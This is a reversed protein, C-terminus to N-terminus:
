GLSAAFAEIDGLGTVFTWQCSATSAAEAALCLIGWVSRQRAVLSDREAFCPDLNGILGRESRRKAENLAPHPRKGQVERITHVGAAAEKAPGSRLFLHETSGTGEPMRQDAIGHILVVSLPMLPISRIPCDIGWINGDKSPIVSHFQFVGPQQAEDCAGGRIRRGNTLRLGPVEQLSPNM